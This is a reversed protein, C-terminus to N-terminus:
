QVDRLEPRGLLRRAEQVVRLAYRALAALVAARPAHRPDSAPLGDKWLASRRPRHERERAPAETSSPERPRPEIALGLTVRYWEHATRADTDRPDCLGTPEDESARLEEPTADYAATWAATRADHVWAGDCDRLVHPVTLPGTDCFPCSRSGRAIHGDGFTCRWGALLRVRLVLGVTPKLMSFLPRATGLEDRVASLSPMAAIVANRRDANWPGYRAARM